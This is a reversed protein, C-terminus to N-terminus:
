RTVNWCVGLAALLVHFTGSCFSRLGDERASEFTNGMGACRDAVTVEHSATARVEVLYSGGETRQMWLNAWRDLTPLYVLDDKIVADVQHGALLDALTQTLPVIDM